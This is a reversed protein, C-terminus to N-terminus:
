YPIDISEIELKIKDIILCHKSHWIRSFNLIEQQLKNFRSNKMQEIKQYFDELMNYIKYFTFQDKHTSKHEKFLTLNVNELTEAQFKISYYLKKFTNQMKEPDLDCIQSNKLIFEIDDIELNRINNELLCVFKKIVKQTLKKQLCDDVYFFNNIFYIDDCRNCNNVYLDIAITDNPNLLILIIIAKTLYWDQYVNLQIKNHIKQTVIQINTEKLAILAAEEDIDTFDQIWAAYDKPPELNREIIEEILIDFKYYDKFESFTKYALIFARYRYLNFCKCNFDLLQDIVITKDCKDIHDSGMWLLIVEKWQNEFVRYVGQEPNEPIHDLFFKYDDIVLAAFYEQFSAHFFAYVEEDPNEEAVGVINLWGIDLALKGLPQDIEGLHKVVQERSLRFRNLSRDIAEKALEGLAHNLEQRQLSTTPFFESKWEYFTDVFWEYLGAKTEPLAGERRQWAYCLLTLQLPNKILDRIREKGSKSLEGQLLFSREHNDIFFRGIFYKVQEEDFDLNRYVDFNELYNKGNDWVNFRCTLVIRAEALWSQEIQNRIWFLPNNIGMEDLGDLLLWVRETKFIDVLAQKSEPKVEFTKLAIKLWKDLLYNELNEGQLDALSVWIIKDEPHTQSVRDVIQQLLTTKGAGPEGIIAIRKGASKPSNGGEIVECFFEDNEFRRTIEEESDYLRSGKEAERDKVRPKKRREMLGLPVYMKERELTIGDGVTLPNSTMRKIQEALMKTFIDDPITQQQAEELVSESSQLHSFDVVDDLKLGLFEVIEKATAIEIPKGNFFREVTSRSTYVKEAIREYSLKKGDERTQVERLRKKGETTASVGKKSPQAKAMAIADLSNM